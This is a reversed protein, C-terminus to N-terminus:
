LSLSTTNKMGTELIRSPKWSSRVTHKLTDDLIEIEAALDDVAVAQPVFSCVNRKTVRIISSSMMIDAKRDDTHAFWEKVQRPHRWTAEGRSEGIQRKGSPPPSGSEVAPNSPSRSAPDFATRPEDL